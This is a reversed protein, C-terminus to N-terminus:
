DGVEGGCLMDWYIVKKAPKMTGIERKWPGFGGAKPWTAKPLLVKAAESADERRFGELRSM